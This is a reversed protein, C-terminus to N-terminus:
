RTTVVSSSRAANALPTKGGVVSTHRVPMGLHSRALSTDSSVVAGDAESRPVTTPIGGGGAETTATWDAKSPEVGGGLPPAAFAAPFGFRLAVMTPSPPCVPRVSSAFFASRGPVMTEESLFLLTGGPSLRFLLAGGPAVDDGGRGALEASPFFLTGGFLVPAVFFFLTGGGAGGAGTMLGAATTATAPSVGAGDLAVGLEALAAAERASAARACTGFFAQPAREPLAAGVGAVGGGATAFGAGVGGVGGAAIGFGSTSGKDEGTDNEPSASVGADGTCANDRSLSLSSVQTALGANEGCSSAAAAASKVASFGGCATMSVFSKGVAVGGGTATIGDACAEDPGMEWGGVVLGDANGRM